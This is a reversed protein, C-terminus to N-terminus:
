NREFAQPNLIQVFSIHLPKEHMNENVDIETLPGLKWENSMM